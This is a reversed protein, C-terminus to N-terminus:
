AMLVAVLLLPVGIVVAVGVVCLKLHDGRSDKHELIAEYTGGWFLILGALSALWGWLGLQTWGPMHTAVLVALLGGAALVTGLWCMHNLNETTLYWHKVKTIKEM